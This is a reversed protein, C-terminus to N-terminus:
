GQESYENDIKLSMFTNKVRNKGRSNNYVDLFSKHHIFDQDNLLSQFAHPEAVSKRLTNVDRM